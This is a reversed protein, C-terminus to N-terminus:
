LLRQHVRPRALVFFTEHLTMFKIIQEILIGFVLFCELLIRVARKSVRPAEYHVFKFM